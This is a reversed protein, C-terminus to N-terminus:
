AKNFTFKDHGIYSAIVSVVMLLGQALWFPLGMHNVLIWLGAIGFFASGGYVVYCRLYERLWSSKSRFVFIKYTIFSETICVINAILGVVVIHLHNKVLYYFWVTFVYSFLTNGGGVVFYRLLKKRTEKDAAYLQRIKNMRLGDISIAAWSRRM